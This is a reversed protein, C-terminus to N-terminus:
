TSAPRRPETSLWDAAVRLPEGFPRPKILSAAAAAVVAGSAALIWAATRLDGLFADWVARAAAQEDPGEVHEVAISRTVAYAVVLLVGAVSAGVGLDVVTQRRDPSVALAAAVLMLSLVLLFLALLQVREAIDALTASLSGINSTVLEVRKTSELKNALAPRVQELAAALVTGVDTMTLTVTNRDRKFLARHLDRVAKRFLNTFARGGVIESAVSEIIPRAAILDAENKLVVEDTRPWFWL